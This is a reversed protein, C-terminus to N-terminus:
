QCSYGAVAPLIVGGNTQASLNEALKCPHPALRPPRDDADLLWISRDKYYQLLEENEEPGMDRAWVVKSGDIDADNYVWEGRPDHDPHYRVLVLQRAPLAALQDLVTQRAKAMSQFTNPEPPKRMVRLEIPLMVIAIVIIARSLFLGARKGDFQWGRLHRMGQLFIAVIAGAAPAAYHPSFFVVVSNAAFCAAAAILLYRVRRDRIVRPLFFLPMTLTPGIYFVWWMGVKIATGRLIGWATRAKIFYTLEVDEYFDRMPKSRYVPPPSATQWYFYKATAYTERNVQQPLRFPNGTVRWCYYCSAAGGIMLVILLPLAIREIWVDKPPRKRWIWAVLIGLVAVTVFSGEYPRTNALIVMGLGLVIAHWKQARRMIRPLAGLVLAGGTAAVAGGWYSNGWYSFVGFRMVPLMGGLFAWSPPFWGQLMWCITACMLGVSLWVGWFPHGGILKGAALVFGQLPQYMSAYTPHFIIHFSEFHMWMPHPPNALRGHAFTDAALLFSFEDHFLPVPIPLWPLLAARIALAGGGCVLVSLVRLRAVAGLAREVRAFWKAGLQPYVLAVLLALSILLTGPGVFELALM